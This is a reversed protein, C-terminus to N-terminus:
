YCYKQEVKDALSSCGVEKLADAMARWTPTKCTKLWHQFIAGLAGETDNRHNSRIIEMHTEDNTLTLGLRYWDTTQM